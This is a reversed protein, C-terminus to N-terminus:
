RDRRGLNVPAPPPQQADAALSWVMLLSGTAALLFQPLFKRHM